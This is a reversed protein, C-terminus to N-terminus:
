QTRIYHIAPPLDLLLDIFELCDPSLLVNFSKREPNFYVSGLVVLRRKMKQFGQLQLGSARLKRSGM